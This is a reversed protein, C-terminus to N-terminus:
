IIFTGSFGLFSLFLSFIVLFSILPILIAAAVIIIKLGLSRHNEKKNQVRIVKLVFTIEGYFVITLIVFAILLIQSNTSATPTHNPNTVYNFLSISNREGCLGGFQGNDQCPNSIPSYTFPIVFFVIAFSVIAAILIAAYYSM